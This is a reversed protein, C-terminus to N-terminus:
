VLADRSVTHQMIKHTRIRQCPKVPVHERLRSNTVYGNQQAYIVDAVDAAHKGLGAETRLGYACIFDDGPVPLHDRPRVLLSEFDDAASQRRKFPGSVE